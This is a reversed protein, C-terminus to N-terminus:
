PAVGLVIFATAPNDVKTLWKGVLGAKAVLQATESGKGPGPSAISGSLRGQDDVRLVENALGFRLGERVPDTLSQARRAFGAHEIAHQAVWSGLHTRTTRPLAERTGRHMVLPAVLFALPWPMPDGDAREYEIASAAIVVALLAPNLM